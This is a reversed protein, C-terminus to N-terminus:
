HGGGGPYSGWPCLDGGGRFKKEIRSFESALDPIYGGVGHLTLHSASALVVVSGAPFDRGKTIDLWVSVIENLGGDEVRIIKLCEESNCPLVAPFNQDTLVFVQRTEVGGGGVPHGGRGSCSSCILTKPDFSFSINQKKEVLTMFHCIAM